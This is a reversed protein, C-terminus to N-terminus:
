ECRQATNVHALTDPRVVGELTAPSGSSDLCARQERRPTVELTPLSGVRAPTRAPLRLLRLLGPDGERCVVAHAPARQQHAVEVRGDVRVLRAQRGTSGANM